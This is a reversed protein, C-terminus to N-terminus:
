PIKIRESNLEVWNFTREVAKKWGIYGREREESTM